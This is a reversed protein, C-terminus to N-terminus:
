PFAYYMEFICQHIRDTMYWLWNRLHSRTVFRCCIMWFLQRDSNHLLYILIGDHDIVTSQYELMSVLTRPKVIHLLCKQTKGMLAPLINVICHNDVSKGCIIFAMMCGSNSKYTVLITLLIKKTCWIIVCLNITAFVYSWLTCFFWNFRVPVHMPFNWINSYSV